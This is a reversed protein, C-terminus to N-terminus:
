TIRRVTVEVRPNARDLELQVLASLVQRDDPWAVGKLGDCISKAFNDWDGRLAQRYVRIDIAYRHDIDILWGAQEAATDAYTAVLSQYKRSKAPLYTRGKAFRPRECPVPPGPVTFRLADRV